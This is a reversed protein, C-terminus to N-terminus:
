ARAATEAFTQRLSVSHRECAVTAPSHLRRSGVLFLYSIAAQAAADAAAKAREFRNRAEDREREACEHELQDILSLFGALANRARTALVNGTALKMAAVALPHRLRRWDVVREPPPQEGKARAPTEISM